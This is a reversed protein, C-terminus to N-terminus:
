SRAHLGRAIPQTVDRVRKNALDDSLKLGRMCPKERLGGGAMRARQLHQLEREIEGKGRM